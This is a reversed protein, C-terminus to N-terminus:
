SLAIRLYTRAHGIEGSLPPVEYSGETIYKHLRYVYEAHKFHVLMIRSCCKSNICAVSKKRNVAEVNAQPKLPGRYQSPLLWVRSGLPSAHRRWFFLIVLQKKRAYNSTHSYRSKTWLTTSKQRYWNLEWYVIVTIIALTTRM